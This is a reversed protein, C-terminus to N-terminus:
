ISRVPLKELDLVVEEPTGDEELHIELKLVKADAQLTEFVPVSKSSERLSKIHAYEREYHSKPKCSDQDKPEDCIAFSNQELWDEFSEPLEPASQMGVKSVFKLGSDYPIKVKEPFAKESFESCPVVSQARTYEVYKDDLYYGGGAEVYENEYWQGKYTYSVKIFEGADAKEYCTEVSKEHTKMLFLNGNGTLYFRSNGSGVGDAKCASIVAIIVLFALRIM